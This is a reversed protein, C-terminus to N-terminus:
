ENLLDYELAIRVLGVTNRAGVKVLMNHRHTEVTGYSIHLKDAIEQTTFEDIILKLVEKERRSLSPFPSQKQQKKNGQFSQVIIDNVTNEIYSKGEYVAKIANVVEDKGASKLVYGKAGHQLMLKILSSERHMSLAIVKGEPYQQQLIKCLEVGNKGPLNIDLLIVDPKKEKIKKLGDEGNLAYGVPKIGTTTALMMQLGDIFMKHDEIIFVTIM